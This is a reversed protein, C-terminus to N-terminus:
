RGEAPCPPYQVDEGTRTGQSNRPLFRYWEGCPRGDSWTGREMLDGPMPMDMDMGAHEAHDGAQSGAANMHAAHIDGQTRSWYAEYSGELQGEEYTGRDSPRGTRFYSEFPGHLEGNRFTERAELQGDLYFSEREGHWRGNQLTGRMRVISDDWMAVVPGSYAELTEPHLYVGRRDVLEDLSMPSQAALMAPAGLLLAIM